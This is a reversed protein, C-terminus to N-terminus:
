ENLPSGNGGAETYEREPYDNPMEDFNRKGPLGSTKLLNERWVAADLEKSFTKRCVKGEHTVQGIWRKVGTAWYVGVYASVVGSQSRPKLRLGKTPKNYVMRGQDKAHQINEKQTVWELNEARNDFKDNNIHNVVNCNEPKNCWAFAVVRHTLRKISRKEGIGVSFSTVKYGSNVVFTSLVNGTSSNRVKGCSSVEYGPFEAVPRWNSDLLEEQTVTKIKGIKINLM